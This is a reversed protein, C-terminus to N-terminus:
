GFGAGWYPCVFEHSEEGLCLGEEVEDIVELFIRIVGGSCFEVCWFGTREERVGWGRHQASVDRSLTNCSCLPCKMGTETPRLVRKEKKWKRESTYSSLLRSVPNSAKPKLSSFGNGVGAVRKMQLLRSVPLVLKRMYRSLLRKRIPPSYVIVEGKTMLYVQEVM